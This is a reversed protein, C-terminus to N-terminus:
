GFQHAVDGGRHDANQIIELQHAHYTLQAHRGVRHHHIHIKDKHGCKQAKGDAARGNDAVVVARVILALQFAHEALAQPDDPHGRSRHHHDRLSQAIGQGKGKHSVVRLQQLHGHLAEAQKRQAIQEATDINIGGGEKGGQAVPHHRGQEGEQARQQEPAPHHQQHGQQKPQVPDPGRHDGGLPQPSHRRHGRQHQQM